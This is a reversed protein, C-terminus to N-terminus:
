AQLAGLKALTAFAAKKSTAFAKEAKSMASKRLKATNQKNAAVIAKDHIHHLTTMRKAYAPASKEVKKFTSVILKEMKPQIKEYWAPIGKEYNVQGEAFNVNVYKADKRLKAATRVASHSTSVVGLEDITFLLKGAGNVLM